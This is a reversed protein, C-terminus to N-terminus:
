FGSLVRLRDRERGPTVRLPRLSTLIWSERERGSSTVKIPQSVSFDLVRNQEEHQLSGSGTAPVSFSIWSQSERKREREYDQASGVSESFCRNNPVSFGLGRETDRERGSEPSGSCNDPVSFDLVREKEDQHSTVRPPPQRFSLVAM